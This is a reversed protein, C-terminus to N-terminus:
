YNVFNYKSMEEDSTGTFGPLDTTWKGDKYQIITAASEEYGDLNYDEYSVLYTNNDGHAVLKVDTIYWRADDPLNEAKYKNLIGYALEISMEKNSEELNENNYNVFNYKSMEEDSTGSFGPLDTIWKGNKYKIIAGVTAIYGDLNVEDYSVWYTNDDGHAIMKVKGIYWNVDSLNENKYKNLIGYALEVSMDNVTESNKNDSAINNSTNSNVTNLSNDVKDQQNEITTQLNTDNAKVEEIERNANTKEIYIYIGMVIIIIIAIFLLFTSLSIKLTKKEEMKEGGNKQVLYKYCYLVVKIFFICYKM